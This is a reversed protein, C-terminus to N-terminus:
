IEFDLTTHADIGELAYNSIIGNNDINGIGSINFAINFGSNLDETLKKGQPTELIEITNSILMGDKDIELNKAIFAVNSLTHPANNYYGLIQKNNQNIEDLQSKIIDTSYIRGNKNPIDCQLLKIKM